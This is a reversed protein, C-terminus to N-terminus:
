PGAPREHHAPCSLREPTADRVRRCGLPYGRAEWLDVMGGERMLDFFRPDERLWVMGPQWAVRLWYFAFRSYRDRTLERAHQFFADADRLALDDWRISGWVAAVTGTRRAGALFAPRATPEALATYFADRGAQRVGDTALAFADSERFIAAARVTDGRNAFEIALGNLWVQWHTRATTGTALEAARRVLTEGTDYAGDAMYAAGLWGANPMVLSERRYAEELVPIAEDVYGAILLAVGHWLKPTTEPTEIAAARGSMVLAELARGERALLNARVALALPLDARLDLARAAAESARTAMAQREVAGRPQDLRSLTSASLFAWAEAFDPDRQVAASLQPIADDHRRENFSSRGRLFHEYAVLDSTVAAVTVRRIGLVPELAAMIAGAIEEQVVFIDTLDRDYVESWLHKDRIADILQATIRVRTGQKRVSGELVLGVGLRQAIDPISSQSDRFAFASTRSAVHLGDVRALVNLLEEAIGDAFHANDAEPSMNMFPLVALALSAGADGYVASALTPRPGQFATVAGLAVAAVLLVIVAVDLRRATARRLDDSRPSGDDRRLGDPTIEFLWALVLAPVFAILLFVIVIRMVWGPADFSAAALGAVETLLWAGVLYGVAVRFVSRRKLESLLGPTIM